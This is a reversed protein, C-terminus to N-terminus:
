SGLRGHVFLVYQSQNNNQESVFLKYLYWFKYTGDFYWTASIKVLGIPFCCNWNRLSLNPMTLGCAGVQPPTNPFLKHIVSQIPFLKHIVSQIPFLKHIIDQM